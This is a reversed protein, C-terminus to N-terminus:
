IAVKGIFVSYENAFTYSFSGSTVTLPGGTGEVVEVSTGTVEPPLSFTKSGTAGGLAIGAFIYAFGDGPAKLMTDVGSAGFSWVYSQTNLVPALSAIKANIGTVYTRLAADGDILSFLNDNPTTGTNPDTTPAGTQDYFGNQQFYLIGRAEHILSAWVAGKIQAYLIINRVGNDVTLFPLQTEIYNWYPKGSGGLTRMRGVAWGYAASRKALTDSTGLTWGEAPPQTTNERVNQATYYYHDVSAFDPVAFADDGLNEWWFTNLIVQAFNTHVFRGDNRSRVDAVIAQYESLTMFLEPEDEVHWAVVLPDTGIDSVSWENSQPIVFMGAATATSPPDHSPDSDSGVMVNIGVAQLDAVNEAPSLWTAIPFFSPDSWGAAEAKTMKAGSQAVTYYDPGGEWAIRSLSLADGGGGSDGVTGAEYHALVRAASLDHDYVAVEDITGTYNFISSDPSDGVLFPLGTQATLTLGFSVTVEEVGNVFLRSTSGDTTAVIHYTTGAVWSTTSNMILPSGGSIAFQARIKGSIPALFHTGKGLIALNDFQIKAWAEWAMAATPNFDADDAATLISGDAFVFGKAGTSDSEAVLLSAADHVTGSPTLTHGNGTEDTYDSLRWYAVPNDVAVTAAYFSPTSGPATPSITNSNASVSGQSNTATVVCRVSTGEDAAQLTYSTGTAGSIAVTNRQWQRAFTPPPWGTWTGTSCAVVEGTVPTGDTSVVPAVTNAPIANTPVAATSLVFVQYDSTFNLQFVGSSNVAVTGGGYVQFTQSALSPITFTGTTVGPRISQAAVFTEGGAIRTTYHIPIPAGAGIGGRASAMTGSSTVSTILGAEPALLADAFFQLQAALAAIMTAMPANNLITAFDQSVAVTGFRHDFLVIGQAGAILQSWVARRVTEPLPLGPVQSTTEVVGWVPARADNLEMMRKIQLPYTWLGFKAPGAGGLEDGSPAFSDEAALSYADCQLIDALAAYSRWDANWSLINGSPPQPIFGKNVVPVRSMGLLIPRTSDIVRANNIWGRVVTPSNYPTILDPEDTAHYWRVLAALTSDSLVARPARLDNGHLTPMWDIEAAKVATIYGDNAEGAMLTNVGLGAYDALFEPDSFFVAFPFQKDPAVSLPAGSRLALRAHAPPDPEPRGDKALRLM